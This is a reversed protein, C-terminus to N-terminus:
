WHQGVMPSFEHNTVARHAPPEWFPLVKNIASCYETSCDWRTALFYLSAVMQVVFQIVLHMSDYKVVEIPFVPNNFEVRLHKEPEAGPERWASKELKCFPCAYKYQPPVHDLLALMCHFDVVCFLSVISPLM